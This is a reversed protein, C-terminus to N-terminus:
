RCAEILGRPAEANPANIYRIVRDLSWVAILEDDEGVICVRKRRQVSM